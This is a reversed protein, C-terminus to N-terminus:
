IGDIDEMVMLISGRVKRARLESERMGCAFPGLRGDDGVTRGNYLWISDTAVRYSIKFPGAYLEHPIEVIQGVEFKAPHHTGWDHRHRWCTFAGCHRCTIRSVISCTVCPGSEHETPKTTYPNTM